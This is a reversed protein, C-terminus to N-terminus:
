CIFVICLSSVSIEISNCFEENRLFVCSSDAIFFGAAHNRASGSTQAGGCGLLSGSTHGGGDGNSERYTKLKFEFMESKDGTNCSNTM